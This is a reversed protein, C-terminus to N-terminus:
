IPPYTSVDSPLVQESPLANVLVNNVKKVVGSDRRMFLLAVQKRAFQQKKRM